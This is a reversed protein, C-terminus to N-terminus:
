SEMTTFTVIFTTGVGKKSEVEINGDNLNCYNKVLALGLGNGEFHRTYGNEEQSFSEFLRPLFDESMGIGTDKVSITVSGKEKNELIISVTGKPTYKIANDILNSFLQSLSYQDGIMLDNFAKNVISFELSNNAATQKFEQYLKLLVDDYLHIKEPFIEHNGSQIQSMNLISDITRILRRGGNEIFKFSEKLEDSVLDQIESKLLSTYSLITNVPTRIEHSMQALFNSKLQNSKEAQDKAEILANEIVKRETINHLMNVLAVEGKYNIISANAEIDLLKGNKSVHQIEYNGWEKNHLTDQINRKSKDFDISIKSLSLGVIEDKTYGYMRCAENNATLITYNVPNLILIADHANEFLGRYDNESQLLKKETVIRESLTKKLESNLLKIKGIRFKHISWSISVVTLISLTIFWWTRYYPTAISFSYCVPEKNWVGDDNCALIKFTYNGSPLNSYTEFDKGTAQHWERDFNELMYKYQVRTSNSLSIGVFDITIHNMYYPLHLDDPLLPNETVKGYESLDESRYFIRIDKIITTPEVSNAKLKSPDVMVLGKNTGLWVNGKSDKFSSAQNYEAHPIGDEKNYKKINIKNGNYYDKLSFTCLGAQTGVWMRDYNDIEILYINDSILGDKTTIKQIDLSNGKSLTFKYLGDGYTGGWITGKNDKRLAFIEKQKFNTFKKGDYISIGKSTSIWINGKEDDFVYYVEGELLGNKTSYQTYTTGDYKFVGATFTCFWVNGRSDGCIVSVGSGDLGKPNKIKALNRGDYRFLGSITGFWYIGRKDQYISYCQEAALAKQKEFPVAVNNKLLTVGYKDTIMWINKKNDEFISWVLNEKLGSSKDWKIFAENSLLDLGDNTGFWINGERDQFVDYVLGSGLGNKENYSTFGKRDYRVLGFDRVSFWLNGDNTERIRLVSNNLLIKSQTFKKFSDNEYYYVGAVTCVWLMKKSDFFLGKITNRPSQFPLKYTKINNNKIKQIIAGNSIWIGGSDDEKIYRVDENLESDSIRKIKEFKGNFITLGTLSGIWYVGKKDEIITNINNDSLGDKQTFLHMRKGDYKVLGDYSCFWINDKSDKYANIINDAKINENQFSFNSFTKGNYTVVGSGNSCLFLMGNKDQVISNIQSQILGQESSLHKINFKQPYIVTEPLLPVLFTLLIILKLELKLM